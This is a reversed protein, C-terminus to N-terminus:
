CSSPCSPLSDRGQQSGGQGERWIAGRKAALRNTQTIAGPVGAWSRGELRMGEGHWLLKLDDLTWQERGVSPDGVDIRDEGARGFVVVAHRLGPTWGWEEQYRPDADAGEELHVLLLAPWRDAALLEEVTSAFAVADVPTGESKLKLGRYAGLTPTGSRGTFSLRMMEAEGVEVGYHRLLMAAACAGCSADNSQLLVGDVTWREDSAPQRALLPQVLSFLGVVLLCGASAARRWAPIAGRGAVAGGLAAAGLVIWNGVVIVYSVPLLRAMVLRGHFFLAFAVTAAVIALVLLRYSAVGLRRALLWGGLFGVGSVVGIILLGLAIDNM